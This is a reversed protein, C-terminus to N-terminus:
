PVVKSDTLSLFNDSSVGSSRFARLNGSFKQRSLPERFVRINVFRRSIGSRSLDTCFLDERAVV